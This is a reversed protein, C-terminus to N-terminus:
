GNWFASIILAIAIFLILISWATWITQIFSPTDSPLGVGVTAFLGFRLVGTAISTLSAFFGEQIENNQNFGTANNNLSNIDAPTSAGSMASSPLFAFILGISVYYLVVPVLYQIKM